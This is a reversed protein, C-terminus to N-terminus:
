NFFTYEGASETGGRDWRVGQVVVFHLKYKSIKRSVTMLSGARFLSRVNWMGDM